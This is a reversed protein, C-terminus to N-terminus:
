RGNFGPQKIPIWIEHNHFLGRMVPYSKMWLTYGLCGPARKGNSLHYVPFQVAAPYGEFYIINSLVEM